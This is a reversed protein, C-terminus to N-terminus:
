EPPRLVRVAEPVVRIRAHHHAFGPEGDLMVPLARRSTMVVREGELIRTRRSHGLGRVLAEIGLGFFDWMGRLRFAICQLVPTRAGPPDIGAFGSLSDNVAFFAGSARFRTVTRGSRMKFRIRPIFMHKFAVRMRRWTTWLADRRGGPRMAERARGMVAPFGVAAAVIFYEGNVLGADIDDARYTELESLITEADRDGYLRHPLINATGLPLPVLAARCGRKTLMQMVSRATGDGGAIAIADAGCEHAAICAAEFDDAVEFVDILQSRCAEVLSRIAAESDADVLSGSRTNVILAVKHRPAHTGPGALPGTMDAKIPM